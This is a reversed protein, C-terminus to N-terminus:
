GGPRGVPWRGHPVGARAVCAGDAERPDTIKYPATQRPQPLYGVAVFIRQGDLLAAAPSVGEIARVAVPTPPPRDGGTDNCGPALAGALLRGPSPALASPVSEFYATDDWVVVEAGSAAAALLALARRV